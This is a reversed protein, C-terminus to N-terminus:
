RELDVEDLSQKKAQEDWRDREEQPLNNWMQAKITNTAGWVNFPPPILGKAINFKIESDQMETLRREVEEKIHKEKCFLHIGCRRFTKPIHAQFFQNYKKESLGSLGTVVGARLASGEKSMKKRFNSRESNLTHRIEQFLLHSSLLWLYNIFIVTHYASTFADTKIQRWPHLPSLNPFRLWICTLPNLTKLDRHEANLLYNLAKSTTTSNSRNSINWLESTHMYHFERMPISLKSKSDRYCYDVPGAGSRILQSQLEEYELIKKPDWGGKQIDSSLFNAKEIYVTLM